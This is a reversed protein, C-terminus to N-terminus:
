VVKSSTKVEGSVKTWFKFTLRQGRKIAKSGRRKPKITANGASDREGPQVDYIQKGVLAKALYHTKSKANTVSFSAKMKLASKKITAPASLKPDEGTPLPGDIPTTPEPAPAAAVAITQTTSGTQGDADTVTVTLAVVYNGPEAFTHWCGFGVGTLGDGFNWAYSAIPGDKDASRHGDFFTPEGEEVTSLTYFPATPPSSAARRAPDAPSSASTGLLLVTAVCLAVLTRRVPSGFAAAVRDRAALAGFSSLLTETARRPRTM